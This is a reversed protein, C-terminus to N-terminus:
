ASIELNKNASGSKNGNRIRNNSSGSKNGNRTRDNSSGSKNGNGNRNANIKKNRSQEVGKRTTQEKTKANRAENMECIKNHYPSLHGFDGIDVAVKSTECEWKTFGVRGEQANTISNSPPSQEIRDLCFKAVAVGSRAAGDVSPAVCFDGCWGLNVSSDFLFDASEVTNVPRGDQWYNLRHIKPQYKAQFGRLSGADKCFLSAFSSMMKDQLKKRDGKQNAEAFDATSILTIYPKKTESDSHVGKQHPKKSNDAVFSLVPHNLVHCASLNKINEHDYGQELIIQLVYFQNYKVGKLFNMMRKTRDGGSRLFPDTRKPHGFCGIVYNYPGFECEKRETNLFWKKSNDDRHISTIQQEVEPFGSIHALGGRGAFEEKTQQTLAELMPGMGGKGVWGLTDLKQMNNSSKEGAAANLVSVEFQDSVLDLGKWRELENQFVSSVPSMYQCGYDFFPSGPKPKAMPSKSLASQTAGMKRRATFWTVKIASSQDHKEISACFTRVSMLAAVGSGVVAIQIM